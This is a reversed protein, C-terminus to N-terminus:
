NLLPGEDEDEDEFGEYDEDDLDLEDESGSVFELAGSSFHTGFTEVLSAVQDLASRALSADLSSLPHIFASFLLAGSSCYRADLTSHFNAELLADKTAEDLEVLEVVPAIFRMRDFGPDCLCLMPVGRFAFRWHSAEAEFDETAQVLLQALEDLTM